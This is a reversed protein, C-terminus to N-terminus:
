GAARNPPIPCRLPAEIRREIQAALDPGILAASDATTVHDILGLRWGAILWIPLHSTRRTRTSGASGSKPTLLRRPPGDAANHADQAPQPIGANLRIHQEELSRIDASGFVLFRHIQSRRVLWRKM